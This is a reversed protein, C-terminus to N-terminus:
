RSRHRHPAASAQALDAGDRAKSVIEQLTLRHLSVGLKARERHSACVFALAAEAASGAPPPGWLLPGDKPPPQQPALQTDDLFATVKGAAIQRQACDFQADITLYAFSPGPPDPNPRIAVLPAALLRGPLRAIADRDLVETGKQDQSLLVYRAAAVPAASVLVAALGILFPKV